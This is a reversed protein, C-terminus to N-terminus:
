ESRLSSDKSDRYLSPGLMVFSPAVPNPPHQPDIELVARSRLLRDPINRLSDIRLATSHHRRPTFTPRDHSM